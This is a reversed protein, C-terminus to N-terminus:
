LNVLISLVDYRKDWFLHLAVHIYLNNQIICFQIISYKSKYNFIDSAKSRPLLKYMLFQFYIWDFNRFLIVINFILYKFRM